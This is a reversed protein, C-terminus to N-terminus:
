RRSALDHTQSPTFRCRRHQELQVALGGFPARDLFGHLRHWRRTVQRFRRLPQVLGLPGAPSIRDLMSRRADQPMDVPADERHPNHGFVEM